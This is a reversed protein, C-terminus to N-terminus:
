GHTGHAFAKLALREISRANQSVFRQDRHVQARRLPLVDDFLQDRLAVDHHFVESRATEVFPPEAIGSEGFDIRPQDHHLDAAEALGTRIAATRTIAYDAFRDASQAM